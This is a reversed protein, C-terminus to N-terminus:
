GTGALRSGTSHMISDFDYAGYNVTDSNSRLELSDPEQLEELYIIVYSDRDSRSQEHEMGLAHGIEHAIVDQYRNAINMEQAGGIM